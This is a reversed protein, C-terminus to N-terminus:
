KPITTDLKKFDFNGRKEQLEDLLGLLKARELISMSSSFDDYGFNYKIALKQFDDEVAVVRDAVRTSLWPLMVYKFAFTLFKFRPQRPNEFLRKKLFADYLIVGGLTALGSYGMAEQRTQLRRFMFNMDDQSIRRFIDNNEVFFNFLASPNDSMSQYM